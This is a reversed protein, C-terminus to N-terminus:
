SRGDDETPLILLQAIAAALQGGTARPPLHAHWRRSSPRPPQEPPQHTTLLRTAPGPNYSARATHHHTCFVTPQGAGTATRLASALAPSPDCLTASSWLALLDAPARLETVAEPTTLTILSPYRGHEWLTTTILHAAIRLVHGAPGFTPPSTDLIITVPEPAPPVPARHERYLLQDEALRSSLLERPLALETPLLRSPSGGRSIGVTGPSYALMGTVATQAAQAARPSDAGALLRLERPSLAPLQSVYHALRLPLLPDAACADPGLIQLLTLTQGTIATMSKRLDEIPVQWPRATSSGALALASALGALDAGSPPIYQHPVDVASAILAALAIRAGPTWASQADALERLRGLGPEDGLGALRPDYLTTTPAPGTLTVLDAILGMPLWLGASGLRLLAKTLWDAPYLGLPGASGSGPGGTAPAATGIRWVQPPGPDDPTGSAAMFLLLDGDATVALDIGHIVQSAGPLKALETGAEPDWIRVAGRGDSTVLVSPWGPRDLWLVSYVSGDHGTLSLRVEGTEPDWIQVVGDGEGVALAPNGDPSHGWAVSWSSRTRPDRLMDLGIISAGTDLDLLRAPANAGGIALVRRGDRLRGEALAHVNHEDGGLRDVIVGSVPDHIYVGNRSHGAAVLPRGAHDQIWALSDARGAPIGEPRVFPAVFEGTGPDWLRTASGNRGAVVLLPRGDSLHGWAFRQTAQAPLTLTRLLSGDTVAWVRLQGDDHWTAALLQGDAQTACHVSHARPWDQAPFPPTVDQPPLVLTGPQGPTAPQPRASTARDPQRPAPAAVPPVLTVNWVHVRDPRSTACLVLGGQRDLAWSLNHIGRYVFDLAQTYLVNLTSGDLLFLVTDSTGAVLTRGDPLPIWLVLDLRGHGVDTTEATFAGDHGERWRRIGSEGYGVTIFTPPEGPLSAWVVTRVTESHVTVVHLMQGAEADYIRVKGAQGASALLLESRRGRGWSVSLVYEDANDLPRVSNGTELDWIWTGHSAGIALRPRGDESYGWSVAEARAGLGMDPGLVHVAEGTGIDWIRVTGDNSASALLPSQGSLSPGWDLAYASADHGTLSRLLEGTGADFIRVVGGDGAVALLLRGDPDVTLSTGYSDKETRWTRTETVSALEVRDTVALVPSQTSPQLGSIRGASTTVSAVHAAAWRRVDNLDPAM